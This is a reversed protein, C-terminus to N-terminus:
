LKLKLKDKLSDVAEDPAILSNSSKNSNHTFHDLNVENLQPDQDFNIEEEDLEICDALDDLEFQNQEISHQFNLEEETLASQISYAQHSSLRTCKLYLLFFIIITIVAFLISLIIISFNNM